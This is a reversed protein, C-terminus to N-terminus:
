AALDFHGQSVPTTQSRQILALGFTIVAIATGTQETTLQFGYIAVFAMLAKFVGIAAALLTSRTSWAVYLDLLGIVVAMFLGLEHQGSIGLWALWGFSVALALVAQILGVVAAPERGFIKTTM